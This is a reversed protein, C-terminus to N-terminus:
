THSRHFKPLIANQFKQPCIVYADIYWCLLFIPQSMILPDSTRAWSPVGFGRWTYQMSLNKRKVAETNGDPRSAGRCGPGERFHDVPDNRLLRDQARLQYGLVQLLIRSTPKKTPIFLHIFLTQTLQM